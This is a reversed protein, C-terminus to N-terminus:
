SVSYHLIYKRVQFRTLLTMVQVNSLLLPLHPLGYFTMRYLDVFQATPNNMPHFLSVQPPPTSFPLLLPPPSSPSFFVYILVLLTLFDLGQPPGTVSLISPSYVSLRTSLRAPSVYLSPVRFIDVGKRIRKGYM